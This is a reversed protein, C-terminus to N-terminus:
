VRRQPCGWGNLEAPVINIAVESAPCWFIECWNMVRAGAYPDKAWGRGSSREMRREHRLCLRM